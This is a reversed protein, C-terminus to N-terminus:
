YNREGSSTPGCSAYGSRWGARYADSQDWLQQDRVPKSAPTGSTRATGTACGDQFGPDYLPDQEYDNTACATLSLLAAAVLIHFRPM